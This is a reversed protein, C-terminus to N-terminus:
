SIPMITDWFLVSLSDHFMVIVHMIYYVITILVLEIELIWRWKIHFIFAMWWELLSMCIEPIGKDVLAKKSKCWRKKYEHIGVWEWIIMAASSQSRKKKEQWRRPWLSAPPWVLCRRSSGTPTIKRKKRLRRELSSTM